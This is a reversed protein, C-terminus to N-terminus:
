EKVAVHVIYVLSLVIAVSAVIGLWTAARFFLLAISILILFSGGLGLAYPTGSTADIQKNHLEIDELRVFLWFMNVLLVVLGSFASIIAIDDLVKLEQKGIIVLIISVCVGVLLTTPIIWDRYHRAVNQPDVKKKESM